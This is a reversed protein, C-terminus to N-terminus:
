SRDQQIERPLRRRIKLVAWPFLLTIYTIEALNKFLFKFWVLPNQSFRALSAKLLKLRYLAHHTFAIQFFIALTSQTSFSQGLYNGHKQYLRFDDALHSLKKLGSFIGVRQAPHIVLVEPAFIIKGMKLIRYALDIDENHPFRFKKDFGDVNLLAQKKYAMNCTWYKGGADNTLQYTFLDSTPHDPITKGEIGQAKPYKRFARDIGKLWDKAPLCDDDTFAIIEGKAIKIGLNRAAAPGSQKKTLYRLNPHVRTLHEIMKRTEGTSGDDSVLIEFDSVSYTQQFLCNLCNRLLGQRNYTPIVVSIKIM